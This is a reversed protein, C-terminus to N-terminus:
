LTEDHVVRYANDWTLERIKQPSCYKALYPICVSMKPPRSTLNHGDSAVIHVLDEKVLRKWQMKVMRGWAGEASSANIQVIGGAAVFDRVWNLQRFLCRYRETHALIPRYGTRQLNGMAREIQSFKVTMPFDVLLYSSNGLTRCLGEDLAQMCSSYYGLEHGLCLYMDPYKEAAYEQLVRFPEESKKATDWFSYPSFHPTLCMARTGDAYAMDLMAYMEEPTKAGDDVGCLLHTHLDFFQM